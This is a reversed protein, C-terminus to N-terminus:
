KTKFQKLDQQQLHAPIETPDSYDVSADPAAVSSARESAEFTHAHQMESPRASMEFQM